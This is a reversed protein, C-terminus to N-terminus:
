PIPRIMVQRAAAPLGTAAEAQWLRQLAPSLADEALPQFGLRAYYPGNWPIERFTILTLASYGQQQAWLAVAEILQGGLGRRAHTPHVDLEHLHAADALPQVVAFGVIAGTPAVAVWVLEHTPDLATTALPADALAPFATARFQQAAAREIAPLLAFEAVTAQRITYGVTRAM